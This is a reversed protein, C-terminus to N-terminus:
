SLTCDRKGAITLSIGHDYTSVIVSRISDKTSKSNNEMLVVNTNPALFATNLWNLNSCIHLLQEGFYMEEVTPRFGYLHEPMKDAVKLTYEKSNKLKTIASAIFLSDHGQTHGVDALLFMLIFLSFYLRM